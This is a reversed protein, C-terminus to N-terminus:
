QPLPEEEFNGHDMPDILQGKLLYPFARFDYFIMEGYTYAGSIHNYSNYWMTFLFAVVNIGATITLLQASLYSGNKLSMIEDKADMCDDTILTNTDIMEIMHQQITKIQMLSLSTFLLMVTLYCTVSLNLFLPNTFSSFAYLPYTQQGTKSLYDSDFEKYNGRTMGFPDITIVLLAM